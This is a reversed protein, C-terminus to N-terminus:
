SVTLGLWKSLQALELELIEQAKVPLKELSTTLTFNEVSGMLRILNLFYGNDIRDGIAIYDSMTKFGAFNSGIMDYKSALVKDATKNLGLSVKGAPTKM